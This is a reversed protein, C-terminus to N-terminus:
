LWGAQVSYCHLEKTTKLQIKKFNTVQMIFRYKSNLSTISKLNSYLLFFEM